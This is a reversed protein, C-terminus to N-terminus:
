FGADFDDDNNEISDIFDDIPTEDGKEVEEIDFLNLGIDTLMKEVTEFSEGFKIFFPHENYELTNDDIESFILPLIDDICDQM